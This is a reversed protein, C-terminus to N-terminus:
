SEIQPPSDTEKEYKTKLEQILQGMKAYWDNLMRQM